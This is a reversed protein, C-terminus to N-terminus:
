PGDPMGAPSGHLPVFTPAHSEFRRIVLREVLAVLDHPDGEHALIQPEEQDDGSDVLHVLLRLPPWVVGAKLEGHVADAGRCCARLPLRLARRGVLGSFRLTSGCPDQVACDSREM